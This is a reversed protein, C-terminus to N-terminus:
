QIKALDGHLIVPNMAEIEVKYFEIEPIPNLLFIKKGLVHAFGIELFTNGGIYDQIGKKEYNMVLVADSKQIESYYYRIVDASRKHKAGEARIQELATKGSLILRSGHPIVVTDGQKELIDATEKIKNTFDLSGCITIRM